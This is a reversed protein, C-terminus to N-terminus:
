RTRRRTHRLPVFMDAEDVDIFTEWRVIGVWDGLRREPYTRECVARLGNAALLVNYVFPTHPDLFRQPPAETRRKRARRRILAFRKSGATVAKSSRGVSDAKFVGYGQVNELETLPFEDLAAVIDPHLQARVRQLSHLLRVTENLTWHLAELPRETRGQNQPVGTEPVHSLIIGLDLISRSHLPEGVPTFLRAQSVFHPMKTALITLDDFHNTYARFEVRRRPVDVLLWNFILAGALAYLLNKTVQSLEHAGSFLEDVSQALEIGLLSITLIVFCSFPHRALFSSLNSVSKPIM